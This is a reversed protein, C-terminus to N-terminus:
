CVERTIKNREYIEATLKAKSIKIEESTGIRDTGLSLYKLATDLDHIGGSAIIKVNEKVTKKIIKVATFTAGNNSFGTSTKIYDVKADLCIECARIIENKSLKSIEIIVKIPKGNLALKVDIIDKLVALYNNSKLAGINIVMEIEDAGNEIAKRAEFVKAQTSMAGLPFSVTSCIKVSSKDLLQKALSVHCSNICIAHYKNQLAENCFNVIDRNTTCSNLKTFDLFTNIDM